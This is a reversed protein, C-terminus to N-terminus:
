TGGHIPDRLDGMSFFITIEDPFISIEHDCLQESRVYGQQRKPNHIIYSHHGLFRTANRKPFFWLYKYVVIM